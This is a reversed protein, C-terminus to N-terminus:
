KAWSPQSCSGSVHQVDKVRKTPVDLLSVLRRGGVRRTFVVTRSNPAWSPDEGAVGTNTRPDTLLDAAGGAASVTCIRFGGMNATFVITKGDPSWDPETCSSAGDTRLRRMEGGGAPVIYLAARGSARSAFCISRGDPSWCPSSEDEKTRTLQTPNNGDIDRVYIDPSGNKSLVMAVRRGDPSVAAGANLGPYRAFPRRTGSSLDHFFIDPNGDKYSTYFLARRGPVWAPDRTITNDQTVRLANHGDYDAIYIESNQGTDVKFAIKTRAIGQRGPLLQVIDDAFAHAQARETGGTYEKSLLSGKLRDTVRGVLSSRNSGSILLLASDAGAIEFGAIELDFKLASLAEGSIGEIAVPIFDSPRSTGPVIIRPSEAASLLNLCAFAFVVRLTRCLPMM